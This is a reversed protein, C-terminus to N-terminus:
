SIMDISIQLRGVKIQDIIEYPMSRKNGVKNKERTALISFNTVKDDKVKIPEQNTIRELQIVINEKYEENQVKFKLSRTPTIM